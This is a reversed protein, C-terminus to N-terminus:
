RVPLRELSQSIKLFVSPDDDNSAYITALTILKENTKIDFIIFKGANDLFSRQLQFTFNNNFPIAVGGSSCSYSTFLSTPGIGRVM